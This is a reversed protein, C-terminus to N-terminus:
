ASILARPKGIYHIRQQSDVERMDIEIGYLPFKNSSGWYLYWRGDDDKFLATDWPGPQVTRPNRTEEIGRGM